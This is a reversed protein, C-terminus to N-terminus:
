FLASVRLLRYRSPFKEPDIISGVRKATFLVPFTRIETKAEPSSSGFKLSPWLDEGELLFRPRAFWPCGEILETVRIGRTGLDAPNQLGPVHRWQSPSTKEHLEAIRNAVFPKYNHSKGHVWCVVDMSDTLSICESVPCEISRAIVEAVRVGVVAAMLELRLISVNKLPVVKFKTAVMSVKIRGDAYQFGLIPLQGTPLDRHM